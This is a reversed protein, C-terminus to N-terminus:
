GAAVSGAPPETVNESVVAGLPVVSLPPVSAQVGAAACDRIDSTKVIAAVVVDPPVAICDHVTVGAPVIVTAVTPVLQVDVPGCVNGPLKGIPAAITSFASPETVTIEPEKVPGPTKLM